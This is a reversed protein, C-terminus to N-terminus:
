LLSAIHKVGESLILNSPTDNYLEVIIDGKSTEIKVRAMGDDNKNVISCQVNLMLWASLALATAFIKRM